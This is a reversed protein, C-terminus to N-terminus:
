HEENKYWCKLKINYYVIILTVQERIPLEVKTLLFDIGTLIFVYIQRSINGQLYFWASLIKKLLNISIFYWINSLFSCIASEYIRTYWSLCLTSRPIEHSIM